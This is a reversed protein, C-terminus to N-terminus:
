KSRSADARTKRHSTEASGIILFSALDDLQKASLRKGYDDPMISRPERTTQAIESKMLLHFVGDESLLAISFNDENRVLGSFHKGSKTVVRVVQWRPVLYKNPYLIIRRIDSASHNRGFESLDSGIFGGKGKIMHCDSCRAEGFFLKAGAAPDGKVSASSGGTGQLVRIYRVVEEIQRSTLFHFSPMGKDPIGGHITRALAEDTRALAAPTGVIAPAHEGGRGDLGHCTACYAAFLRKGKDGRGQGSNTHAQQGLSMASAALLGACLLAIRWKPGRLVRFSVPRYGAM